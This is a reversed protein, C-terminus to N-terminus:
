KMLLMKKTQVFDGAQLKYLYIGCTLNSADFDVNYSGADRYESVLTSVEKGLLDYVKIQVFQNSGITYYIKTSPNFPNPYNQELAFENPAKTEENIVSSPYLLELRDILLSGLATPPPNGGNTFYVLAIEFGRINELQLQGDGDGFQLVFGETNNGGAAVVLPMNLQIWQGSSDSFDFDTHYYWLDRNGNEDIEALKFELYFDGPSSLNVPQLVKYWFSLFEGSSLDISQLTSDGPTYTSSTGYGGWGDTAEVYYNIRLSGTGEYHSTDNHFLLSLPPHSGKFFVGASSDFSEIIWQSNITQAFLLFVSLVFLKKM